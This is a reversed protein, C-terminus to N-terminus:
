TCNAQFYLQNTHFPHTVGRYGSPTRHRPMPKFYTRIIGSVSMIAFEDTVANFRVIENTAVRNCEQIDTQMTRDANLFQLCRNLYDADDPSGFDSGHRDWHVYLDQYDLFMTAVPM